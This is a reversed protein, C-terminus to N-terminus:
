IQTRWFFIGCLEINIEFLTLVSTAAGERPSSLNAEQSVAPNHGGPDLDGAPGTPWGAGARGLGGWGAQVCLGFGM